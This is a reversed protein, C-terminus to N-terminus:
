GHMWEAEVQEEGGGALGTTHPRRGQCLLEEGLGQPLIM